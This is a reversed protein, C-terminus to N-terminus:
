CIRYLQTQRHADHRNNNESTEGGEMVMFIQLDEDWVVRSGPKRGTCHDEIFGRQATRICWDEQASAKNAANTSQAHLSAHLVAAEPNAAKQKIQWSAKSETNPIRGRM